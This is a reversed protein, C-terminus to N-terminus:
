FCPSVKSQGEVEEMLQTEIESDEASDYEKKSDKGAMIFTQLQKYTNELPFATRIYSLINKEVNEHCFICKVFRFFFDTVM